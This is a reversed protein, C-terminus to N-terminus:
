TVSKFAYLTGLAGLPIDFESMREYGTPATPETEAQIWKVDLGQKVEVMTTIVTSKDIEVM